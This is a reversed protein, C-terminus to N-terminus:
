PSMDIFNGPAAWTISVDRLSDAGNDYAVRM